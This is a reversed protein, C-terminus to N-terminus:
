NVRALFLADVGEMFEELGEPDNAFKGQKVTRDMM